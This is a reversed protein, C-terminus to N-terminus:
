HYCRACFPIIFINTRSIQYLLTHVIFAAPSKYFTIRSPPYRLISLNGQLRGPVFRITCIVNLIPSFVSFFFLQSSISKLGRSIGQSQLNRQFAAFSRISHARDFSLILTGEDERPQIHCSCPIKGQTFEHMRPLIYFLEM